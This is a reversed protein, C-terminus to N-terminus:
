PPPSQTAPSLFTKGGFALSHNAHVYCVWLRTAIPHHRHQFFHVTYKKSTTLCRGLLVVSACPRSFVSSKRIGFLFYGLAIIPIHYLVCMPM